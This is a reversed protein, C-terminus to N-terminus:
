QLRLLSSSIFFKLNNWGFSGFLSDIRIGVAHNTANPITAATPVNVIEGVGKAGYLGAHTPREVIITYNITTIPEGSPQFTETFVLKGPKPSL